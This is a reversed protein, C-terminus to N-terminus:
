GTKVGFLYGVFVTAELANHETLQLAVKMALDKDLGRDQYHKTLEKLEIEPKVGL